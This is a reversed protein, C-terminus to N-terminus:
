WVIVNRSFYLYRDKELNKAHDVEKRFIIALKCYNYRNFHDKKVSKSM